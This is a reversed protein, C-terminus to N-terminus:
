HKQHCAQCLKDGPVRLLPRQTAHVDHCTICTMVRLPKLPFDSVEVKLPLPQALPTKVPIEIRHEGRGMRDAHCGVCLDPEPAILTGTGSDVHCYTCAPHPPEAAAALQWSLWGTVFTVLLLTKM